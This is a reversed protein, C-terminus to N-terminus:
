FFLSSFCFVYVWVTRRPSFQDPKQFEPAKPWHSKWLKYTHIYRGEPLLFVKGYLMGVSSAWWIFVTESSLKWPVSNKRSFSDIGISYLIYLVTNDIKGFSQITQIRHTCKKACWCEIALISIGKEWVLFFCIPKNKLNSIIDITFIFKLVREM